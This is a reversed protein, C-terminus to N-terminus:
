MDSICWIHSVDMVIHLYGSASQCFSINFHMVHFLSSTEIKSLGVLLCLILQFMLLCTKGGRTTWMDELYPDLYFVM